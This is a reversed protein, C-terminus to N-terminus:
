SLDFVLDFVPRLGTLYKVWDFHKYSHSMLFLLTLEFVSAHCVHSPKFFEKECITTKFVEDKRSDQEVQLFEGSM